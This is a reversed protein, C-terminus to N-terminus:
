LRTRRETHELLYKLPARRPDDADMLDFLFRADGVLVRDRERRLRAERPLGCLVDRLAAAPNAAVRRAPRDLYLAIRRIARDHRPECSTDSNMTTGIM